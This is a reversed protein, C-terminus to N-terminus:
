RQQEGKAYYEAVARFAEKPEWTMDPYTTGHRGGDYSKVLSYSAMDLDNQPNENYPSNPHVFTFVFASNVGAKELISLQETIERAQLAEDRVYHGTLKPQVFKGVIPLQHLILSTSDVINFAQGGADEAGQYTCCGFEMVAVPKGHALYPKLGDAYTAKNKQGRYHDLGVIDFSEWDVQEFPLSAYTIPGHFVKRVAGTVDALYDNLPKNHKGDKIGAKGSRFNKMRGMFTSGAIIGKMFLTLETGVCVVLKDPYRARLQEAAQAAQATYDLTRAPSQNWLEPSFWVELGQQLAYESATALRGVDRGCIRVANCHLDAKIIELERRVIAPDYDKRWDDGYLVRGVDYVVGKHKIM